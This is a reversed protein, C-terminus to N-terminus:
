RRRSVDVGRVAVVRVGRMADRGPTVHGRGPVSSFTQPLGELPAGRVQAPCRAGLIGGTLAGREAQARGVDAWRGQGRASARSNPHFNVRLDHM